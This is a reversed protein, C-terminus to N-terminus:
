LDVGGIRGQDASGGIRQDGSGGIRQDGLIRAHWVLAAINALSLLVSLDIPTVMRPVKLWAGAGIGYFLNMNLAVIATLAWFLRRWDPRLAAALALLPIALMQHHEHVSVALVFFAHVTFAALLAMSALDRRRRAMWMAWAVAGATAAQGFPRPDPLGAEMFTSIAMVRRVPVLYADPFGLTPLQYHARVLYNAVWWVNAANGSLIDRRAVWSGTALWVNPLAGAIAFPALVLTVTLALGGTFAAWRGRPHGLLCIALAPAVLVAQPKTMVALGFAVGAWTARGEVLLILAAVAPLMVLPDLYGLVEANLMTAPNLWYALAAWRAPADSGAARAATRYLLWTLAAGFLLGPVKIAALLHWTNPFAPAAAGYVIGVVGLEYLALPPYDVTTWKGQYHLVGREPPSGGVGYVRTVDKAANYTWIKWVGVDEMGPLPLAALRVVAGAVLAALFWARARRRM